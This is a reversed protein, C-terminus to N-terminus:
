EREEHVQIPFCDPSKQTKYYDIFHQLMEDQSLKGGAAEIENLAKSANGNLQYSFIAKEEIEKPAPELTQGKEWIM